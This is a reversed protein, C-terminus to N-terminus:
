WGHKRVNGAVAGADHPFVAPEAQLAMAPSLQEFEGVVIEFEELEVLFGVDLMGVRAPARDLAEGLLHVHFVGDDRGALLIEGHPLHIRVADALGAVPQSPASDTRRASRTKTEATRLQLAAASYGVLGMRRSTGIGGPPPGSMTARRIAGLSPSAAPWGTTTSFRTPPLPLRAPSSTAFDGESPWVSSRPMSLKITILGFM